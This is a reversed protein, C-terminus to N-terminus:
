LMQHSAFPPQAPLQNRTEFRVAARPVETAAMARLGLWRSRNATPDSMFIWLMQHSAFPPQAPLQNLTLPPTAAGPVDMVATVLFGLWMSRKATPDSWPM